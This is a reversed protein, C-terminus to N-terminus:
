VCCVGTSATCCFPRVVSAFGSTLEVGLSEGCTFNDGYIQLAMVPRAIRVCVCWALFWVAPLFLCVCM